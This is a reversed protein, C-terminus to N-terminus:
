ARPRPRRFAGGPPLPATERAAEPARAGPAPPPPTRGDRPSGAEAYGSGPSRWWAPPGRDGGRTGRAARRDGADSGRPQASAEAVGRGPPRHARRREDFARSPTGARPRAATALARFPVPGAPADM